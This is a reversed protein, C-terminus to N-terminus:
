VTMENDALSTFRSELLENLGFEQLLDRLRQASDRKPKGTKRAIILENKM